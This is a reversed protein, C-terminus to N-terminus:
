KDAGFHRDITNALLNYTQPQLKFRKRADELFQEMTMEGQLSVAKWDCIMEIVDILSMDDIGNPWHEPHHRNNAYHVELAENMKKLMRKYALTGEELEALQNSFETFTKLEPRSLKSLDHNFMRVHFEEIIRMIFLSVHHIHPWVHDAQFEKEELTLGIRRM